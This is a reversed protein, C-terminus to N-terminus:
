GSGSAALARTRLTKKDSCSGVEADNFELPVQSLNGGTHDASDYTPEATIPIESVAAEEVRDRYFSAQAISIYLSRRKLWIEIGDCILELKRYQHALLNRIAQADVNQRM